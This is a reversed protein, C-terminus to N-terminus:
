KTRMCQERRRSPQATISSTRLPQTLMPSPSPPTMMMCACCPAVSRSSSRAVGRREGTLCQFAHVALIRRLIASGMRRDSYATPHLETCASGHAATTSGSRVNATFPVCSFLAAGLIRLRVRFQTQVKHLKYQLGTINPLWEDGSLLHLSASIM